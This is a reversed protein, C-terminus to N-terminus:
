AVRFRERLAASLTLLGGAPSRDVVHEVFIVTGLPAGPASPVARGRVTLTDGWAVRAGLPGLVVVDADIAHEGITWVHANARTRGTQVAERFQDALPTPASTLQLTFTDVAPSAGSILRAPAHWAM